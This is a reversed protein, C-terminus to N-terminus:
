GLENLVKVVKQVLQSNEHTNILKGNSTIKMIVSNPKSKDTVRIERVWDGNASPQVSLVWTTEELEPVQTLLFADSEAESIFDSIDNPFDGNRQNILLRNEPTLFVNPVYIKQHYVEAKQYFDFDSNDLVAQRIEDLLHRSDIEHLVEQQELSELQYNLLTIPLLEPLAEGITLPQSFDLPIANPDITMHDRYAHIGNKIEIYDDHVKEEDFGDPLADEQLIQINERLLQFNLDLSICENNKVTTIEFRHALLGKEDDPQYYVTALKNKASANKLLKFLESDEPQDTFSM